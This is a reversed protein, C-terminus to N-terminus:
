IEAYGAAVHRLAAACREFAGEPFHEAGLEIRLDPTALVLGESYRKVALEAAPLRKAPHLWSRIVVADHHVEVARPAGSLLYYLGPGFAVFFLLFLQGTLVFLAISLAIAGLSLVLGLRASGSMRLPFRQPPPPAPERYSRLDDM